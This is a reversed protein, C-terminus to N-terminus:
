IMTNGYQAEFDADSMSLPNFEAKKVSKPKGKTPAAARKRKAVKEPDVIPKKSAAPTVPSTPSNVQAKQASKDPMLGILAGEQYMRRGVTEYADVSSMGNLHGLASLRMVEKNVKDFVGTSVQETLDVLIQPNEFIAQKSDDDWKDKVISSTTSFHESHELDEVVSQLRLEKEDVKYTNPSYNSTDTNDLDITDLGSDKILKAIAEPNKKDLDILYSLKDENLLGNKQLMQGIKRIPAIAQMKQVYNLGKSAMQRLEEVSKFEIEQGNAKVPALVEKLDLKDQEEKEASQSSEESTSDEETEQEESTEDTTEEQADDSVESDEVTEDVKEEDEETDSEELTSEEEVEEVQEEVELVQETSAVPEDELPTNLFEEDSMGLYDTDQMEDTSLIQSDTSDEQELNVTDESM